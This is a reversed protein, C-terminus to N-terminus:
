GASKARDTPTTGDPSNHAFFSKAAMEQAYSTASAALQENWKLPNLGAKVREQNALDVAKRALSNIDVAATDPAAAAPAALAASLLIFFLISALRLPVRM